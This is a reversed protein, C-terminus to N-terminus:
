VKEAFCMALAEVLSSPLLTGYQVFCALQGKDRNIKMVNHKQVRKNCEGVVGHDDRFGILPLSHVRM